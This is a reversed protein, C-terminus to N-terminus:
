HFLCFILQRVQKSEMFRKEEEEKRLKAREVAIAVEESHQRRRQNWVEEDEIGRTGQGQGRGTQPTAPQSGARATNWARNPIASAVRNDSILPENKEMEKKQPERRVDRDQPSEDDSFAM